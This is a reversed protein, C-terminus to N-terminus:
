GGMILCFARQLDQKAGSVKKEDILIYHTLSLDSTGNHNSISLINVGNGIKQAGCNEQISRITEESLVQIFINTRLDPSFNWQDRFSFLASKVTKSLSGQVSIERQETNKDVPTFRQLDFARQTAEPIGKLIKDFM